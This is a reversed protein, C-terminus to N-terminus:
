AYNMELKAPSAVFSSVVKWRAGDDLMGINEAGAYHPRVWHSIRRVAPRPHAIKSLTQIVHAYARLLVALGLRTRNFPSSRKM